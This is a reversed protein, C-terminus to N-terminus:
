IKSEAKEIIARIVPITRTFLSTFEDLHDKNSISRNNILLVMSATLSSLELHDKDKSNLLIQLTLNFKSIELMKEDTATAPNLGIGLSIFNVCATRFADIWQVYGNKKIQKAMVVYSAYVTLCGILLSVVPAILDVISLAKQEVVPSTVQLLLILNTVM